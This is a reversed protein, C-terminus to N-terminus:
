LRAIEELESAKRNFNADLATNQQKEVELDMIRERLRTQLTVIEGESKKASAQLSKSWIQTRVNEQYDNIDEALTTQTQRPDVTGLDKYAVGQLRINEARSRKKLIEKEDVSAYSGYTSVFADVNKSFQDLAKKKNAVIKKAEKLEEDARTIDGNLKEKFTEMKMEKDKIDAELAAWSTKMQVRLPPITTSTSEALELETRLAFYREETQLLCNDNKSKSFLLADQQLIDRELAGLYLQYLICITSAM